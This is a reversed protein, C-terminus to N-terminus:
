TYKRTNSVHSVLHPKMINNLAATAIPEVFFYM